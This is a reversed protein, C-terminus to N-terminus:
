IDRSLPVRDEYEDIIEALLIKLPQLHKEYQKWKLISTKYLEKNVQHRSATSTIKDAKNFELLANDWPLDLHEILSRLQPEHNLVLSEYPNNFIRIGLREWQKMLSWYLKYIDAIKELSFSYPHKHKWFAQMYISLCSGLPHRMCHIIKAEPYIARILPIRYANSPMKDTVYKKEGRIKALNSEYEGVVDRLIEPTIKELVHTYRKVKYSQNLFSQVQTMLELEGGANVDGHSQLIRETLSTGSRPMGVIFIPTNVDANSSISNLTEQDKYHLHIEELDKSSYAGGVEKDRAENAKCYHEWAQDFKGSKDFNDALQYHIDFFNDGINSELKLWHNLSKIAKQNKELKSLVNAYFLSFSINTNALQEHPKLHSLAQAYKGTEFSIRALSISTSSHQPHYRKLIGAHKEALDIHGQQCYHTVLSEHIAFNSPDVELGEYFTTIGKQARATKMYLNALYVVANMKSPEIKLAHKLLKEASLQDRKASAILAMSIVADASDPKFDLLRMFFTEAEIFKSQARLAEGLNYLCDIDDPKIRLASSFFAEANQYEHAKWAIAGAVFNSEFDHPRARLAKNSELKAKDLKNQQYYKKATTLSNSKEQANREKAKM